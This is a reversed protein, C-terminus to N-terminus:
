QIARKNPITCCVCAYFIHLADERVRQDGQSRDRYWHGGMNNRCRQAIALVHVCVFMFTLACATDITLSLLGIHSPNVCINAHAAAAPATL